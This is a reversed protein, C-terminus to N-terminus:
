NGRNLDPPASPDAPARAGGGFLQELLNDLAGPPVAGPIPSPPLGRTAEAMFAKWTRAPLSGGTVRNMPSADDNGFWVGAVLEATFGVFWADRYDQSTGTKGGVPRDLMAARGTGREVVARLLDNMAALAGRSIVREGGQAVRRYLVRGASDRIESIAWPEASVGGNAFPMYAGTLELLTVESAGLTTAFDRRLPSVIGSRRAAAITRDIGGRQAVRVTATNVSRAFADRLTIEGRGADGEYNRPRWDGVAVPADSVRDDPRMGQELAALFVFSKFASGPQRLAATARNFQSAAYDRGGVLARLAGDPSMAVLAAQEADSKEGDRALADAIAAEAARQLRSDLTTRIVLDRDVYGVYGSVQDALWDTFYRASRLNGGTGPAGLPMRRAAEVTAASAFRAEVLNELVEDARRLSRARDSTPAYRSPAKLLGVIVAAERMNLQRASKGFYRQSAAEVGYTAAGLYVRNLYITLIQDKTFRRELWLALLFEQIKREFSREHTLFVNKALQQTITSGGQVVRGARLNVVAARALGVPDVGFHSYFRRDETALLAQPLHAPMESLQVAGAFLDGTTGVVQGSADEFSMSPRRDFSAIAGIDPLRLAYWALVLAAAIAGWISLALCWRLLALLISRRRKRRPPKGGRARRGDDAPAGRRAKQERPPSGGFHPEQRQNGPRRV